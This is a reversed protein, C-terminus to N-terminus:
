IPTAYVEIYKLGKLTKEAKLYDEDETISDEGQLVVYFEKIFELLHQSHLVHVKSTGDGVHEELFSDHAAFYLDRCKDQDDSLRPQVYDFKLIRFGLKHLVKRRTAPLMVDKSADVHDNNTELYIAHCRAHGRSRAEANLSALVHSVLLKGLGSAKATPSVAIYTMLGCNSKPYYECCVGGYIVAKSHHSLKSPDQDLVLIVHLTYLSQHDADEFQKFWVSVPELESEFQGFNPVMLDKYFSALLDHSYNDRLNLLYHALPPESM